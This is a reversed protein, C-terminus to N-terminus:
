GAPRTHRCSPYGTCGFFPQGDSRRRRLVLTGGCACRGIAAPMDLDTSGSASRQAGSPMGAGVVPGDFLASPPQWTSLQDAKVVIDLAADWTLRAPQSQFWRPIARLPAVWVGDPHERVTLRRAQIVLLPHVEVDDGVADSLLRSARDAERRAKLLFDTKAGNVVLARSGVWVNGSLNKTNVTFVGAPGIVVHDINAGRSGVPVDHMAFWGPPLGGLRSAAAYEGRAGQSWAREEASAPHLLRRLFSTRGSSRRLHDAMEQASQGAPRFSVSHGLADILFREDDPNEGHRRM